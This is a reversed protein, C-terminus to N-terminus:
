VSDRDGNKLNTLFNKEEEPTMDKKMLIKTENMAVIVWGTKVAKNVRAM